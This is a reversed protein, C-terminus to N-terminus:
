GHDHVVVGETYADKAGAAGCARFQRANEPRMGVRLDGKRGRALKRSPRRPVDIRRDRLDRHNVRIVGLRAVNVHNEATKRMAARGGPNLDAGLLACSHHIKRAVETQVIRFQVLADVARAAGLPDSLLSDIAQGLERTILQAVCLDDGAGAAIRRARRQREGGRHALPQKGVHHADESLRANGAGAALCCRGGVEAAHDVIHAWVLQTPQMAVDKLDLLRKLTESISALRRLDDEARMSVVAVSREVLM